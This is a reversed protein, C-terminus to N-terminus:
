HYNGVDIFDPKDQIGDKGTFAVQVNATEYDVIILQAGGVRHVTTVDYQNVIESTIMDKVDKVSFQEQEKVWKNYKEFRVINGESGMFSDQNGKTAFSNVVCLSDKSDWTLGDMLPTDADRLVSFGDGKDAVEKVCDEACYSHNKDTIILNHCWTYDGSNGVMFNGVETANDYNELAYRIDFTYCKKNEYFFPENNSSGVDLIAVFVGDDNVASIVDLLGLIGFTTLSQEGKKMHTVANVMGMQNESGLSWELSRLTIPSGSETKEGWLSLASCATPRLADPIMQIIIAEEYSIKGNEVFGKEGQSMQTAFGNIEEKYEKPLAEYLHYMRTEVAEPKYGAGNFAIRINEYIYPEMLQEYDPFARLITDAYAKGVQEPTANEYDLTVDYYDPYTIIKCIGDESEASGLAAKRIGENGYEKVKKTNYADVPVLSSAQQVPAEFDQYTKYDNVCGSLFVVSALSMGAAIRKMHLPISNAGVMFKKMKVRNKSM